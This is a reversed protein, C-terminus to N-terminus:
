KATRMARDMAKGVAKGFDRAVLKEARDFWGMRQRAEHADAFKILLNLTTRSGRVTGLDHIESGSVRWYGKKGNKGRVWKRMDDNRRWVGSVKGTKFKVTGVFVDPQAKLKAILRNPLNGYQNILKMGEDGVPKLLARGNLKNKGGFEYPELYEATRDKIGVVAEPRAKSAKAFLTVANETFPTPRDFTYELSNREAIRVTEAVENIAMATAFPLQDRAMRDLRRELGALTSKVSIRM